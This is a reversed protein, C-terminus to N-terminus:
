QAVLADRLFARAREVSQGLQPTTELTEIEAPMTWRLLADDTRASSDPEAAFVMIVFHDSTGDSDDIVEIIDAIGAVDISIGTEELVERRVAEALREGPEVKGGPLSWCGAYPAGERRLLLVRDGDFIAASVGLVPLPPVNQAAASM